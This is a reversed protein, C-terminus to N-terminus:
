LEETHHKFEEADFPNSAGFADIIFVEEM